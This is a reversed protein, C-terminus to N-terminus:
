ILACNFIKNLNATTYSLTVETLIPEFGIAQDKLQYIDKEAKERGINFIVFSLLAYLHVM